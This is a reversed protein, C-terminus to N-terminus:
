SMADELRGAIHFGGENKVVGRALGLVVWQDQEVVKEM